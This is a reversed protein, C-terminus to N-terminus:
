GKKFLLVFFEVVFSLWEKVIPWQALIFGIIVGLVLMGFVFQISESM